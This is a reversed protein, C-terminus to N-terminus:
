GNNEGNVALNDFEARGDEYIRYNPGESVVTDNIEEYKAEFVDSDCPYFENKMERIIYQGSKVGVWTDHLKDWVLAVIDGDPEDLMAFNAMPWKADLDQLGAFENVESWNDGTFKVAEIEFPKTRYKAM